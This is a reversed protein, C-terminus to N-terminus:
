DKLFYEERIAVGNEELFARYEELFSVRKHHEKQNMITNAIVDKDQIGYSIAAYEHGWGNWAPFSHVFINHTM